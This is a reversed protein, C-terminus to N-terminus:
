TDSNIIFTGHLDLLNEDCSNSGIYAINYLAKFLNDCPLAVISGTIMSIHKESWINQVYSEDKM